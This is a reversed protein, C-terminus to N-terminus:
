DTGVTAVAQYLVVQNRGQAKAQYLAMDAYRILESPADAHQPFSAIGISLTARVQRGGAQTSTQGFEVRWREARALANDHAMNPLLLLFEEGGFRCVVDSARAQSELLAALNVLVADGALHGHTDNIKKFHDIDMMIVSLPQGERACRSLERALIADMYRRNYLGTLPDRNAQEKLQDQLLHIEELQRSLDQERLRVQERAQYLKRARTYAGEAILVTFLSVCLMSLWTAPWGTQPSLKFGTFVGTVTAGLVMFVLARVFGRLGHFATLNVVGGIFLIFSIWLPFALAASWAGFLLTDIAMNNLEARAPDDARMARWYLLQPYLLFQVALLSWALPGAGRDLMHAGLAAFLLVFCWSRNRHNMRVIWAGSKKSVNSM